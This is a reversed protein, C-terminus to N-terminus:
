WSFPNLHKVASVVAKGTKGGAAGVAMIANQGVKEVALVGKGVTVAGKGIEKGTWVAGQVLKEGMSCIPKAALASVGAGVPPPIGVSTGYATGGITTLAQCINRAPVQSSPNPKIVPNAQALQSPLGSKWLFYAVAGLAGLIILAKM